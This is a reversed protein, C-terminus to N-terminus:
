FVCQKIIKAPVGAVLCFPPVDKSVVANAPSTQVTSFGAEAIDAMNAKITNFSWCWAHLIAGDKINEALGHERAVASTDVNAAYANVSYAPMGLLFINSSVLVAAILKIITRTRKIM